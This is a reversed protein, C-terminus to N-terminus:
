SIKQGTFKGVGPFATGVFSGHIIGDSGWTGKFTGVGTRGRTAPNTSISHWTLSITRGNVLGDASGIANPGKCTGALRDGMQRLVCVPATVFTAGRAVITGTFTWTGAFNANAALAPTALMMLTGLVAGARPLTATMRV